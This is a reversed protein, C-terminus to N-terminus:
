DLTAVLEGYIRDKRDQLCDLCLWYYRCYRPAECKPCYYRVRSIKGKKMRKCEMCESRKSRKKMKMVARGTRANTGPRKADIMDDCPVPRHLEVELKLKLEKVEAKWSRETLQSVRSAVSPSTAINQVPALGICLSSNDIEVTDSETNKLLDKAMMNVANMLEWNKHRHNNPLHHKYASWCDAVCMGFVGTVIQFYGYPIVWMKELRLEKQRQQNHVDVINSINFYQSCCAPRPVDRVMSNSNTNKFRAKYLEGLETWSAGETFLFYLTKKNCYKYGFTFLQVGDPTPAELVLYTGGPWDKMNNELIKKPYRTHGTKVQTISGSEIYSSIHHTIFHMLSATIAILCCVIKGISKGDPLKKKLAIATPVSGFWSDGIFIDDTADEDGDDNNRQWYENATRMCCATAVRKNAEDIFERGHADKRGRVLEIYEMIHLVPCTATKMETGLDEPKRSVFSLHPLNGTKMIRPRLASISEHAVRVNSSQVKERRCKNFENCLQAIQWWSEGKSKLEEDAWMYPVFKKIQKFQYGSMVDREINPVIKYGETRGEDKWLDGGPIGEIRAVLM